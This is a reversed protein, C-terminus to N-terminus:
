HIPFNIFDDHVSIKLRHEWAIMKGVTVADIHPEGAQVSWLRCCRDERIKWGPDPPQQIEPIAADRDQPELRNGLRAKGDQGFCWVSDHQSHIVPVEVEAEYHGDARVCVSPANGYCGQHPEIVAQAAGIQRGDQRHM